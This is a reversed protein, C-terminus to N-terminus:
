VALPVRTSISLRWASSSQRLRRLIKKAEPVGHYLARWGDLNWNKEGSGPKCVLRYGFEARHLLRVCGGCAFIDKAIAWEELEAALIDDHTPGPILEHFFRSVCRLRM